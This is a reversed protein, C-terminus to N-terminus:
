KTMSLFPLWWGLLCHLNVKELNMKERVTEKTGGVSGRVRGVERGSVGGGRVVLTWLDFQIVRCGLSLNKSHSGPIRDLFDSIQYFDKISSFYVRSKLSSPCYIPSPHHYPSRRVRNEKRSTIQNLSGVEREGSENWFFLKCPCVGTLIDMSSRQTTLPNVPTDCLILM